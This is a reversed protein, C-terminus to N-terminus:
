GLVKDHLLNPTAIRRRSRARIRLKARPWDTQSGASKTSRDRGFGDSGSCNYARRSNAQVRDKANRTVAVDSACGVPIPKGKTEGLSKHAAGAKNRISRPRNLPRVRMILNRSRSGLARAPSRAHMRIQDAISDHSVHPPKGAQRLRPGRVVATLGDDDLRMPAKLQALNEKDSALLAATRNSDVISAGQTGLDIIVIPESPSIPRVHEPAGTSRIQLLRPLRKLRPRAAEGFAPSHEVQSIPRPLQDIDLREQIAPRSHDMVQTRMTEIRRRPSRTEADLAVEVYHELRYSRVNIVWIGCSRGLVFVATSVAAATFATAPHPATVSRRKIVLARDLRGVATTRGAM